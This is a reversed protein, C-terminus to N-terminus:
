LEDLKTIRRMRREAAEFPTDLFTAVLVRALDTDVFDAPLALVNVNNDNRAARLISPDTALVGRAGRIRNVAIAMGTGSGCITIGRADPDSAVAHAVRAGIDPYDDNVDPTPSSVDEIRHGGSSLWSALDNRLTIGRHDAGIVIRM